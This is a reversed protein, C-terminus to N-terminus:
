FAVWHDMLVAVQLGLPCGFSKNCAAGTVPWENWMSASADEESRCGSWRSGETEHLQFIPSCPDTEIYYQNIATSPLRRFELNVKIWGLMTWRMREGKWASEVRGSPKGKTEILRKMEKREKLGKGLKNKTHDNLWHSRLFFFSVETQKLKCNETFLLAIPLSLNKLPLGGRSAFGDSPTPARAIDWIPM